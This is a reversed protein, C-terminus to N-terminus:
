IPSARLPTKWPVDWGSGGRHGGACCGHDADTRRRAVCRALDRHPHLG